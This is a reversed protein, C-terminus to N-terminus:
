VPATPPDAHYATGIQGVLTNKELEDVSACLMDLLNYLSGFEVTLRGDMYLEGFALKPNVFLRRQAARDHLRVIVDPAGDRQQGIIHRVGDADLIMLRGASVCKNLLRALLM